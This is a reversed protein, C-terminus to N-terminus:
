GTEFNVWASDEIHLTLEWVEGEEIDDHAVFSQVGFDEFLNKLPREYFKLFVEPNISYLPSFSRTDRVDSRTM